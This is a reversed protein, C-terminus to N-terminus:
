KGPKPIVTIFSHMFSPHPIEGQLLSNYLSLLHPTLIPLFAKYYSYPLGDQGPSKHSPLHKITAALEEVAISANLKQLDMKTLKPLKIDALFADFTEHNFPPHHPPNLCNYLKDYFKSFVRAMTQPCHTPTGDPQRLHDPFSHFPRPKLRSVLMPKNSYEYFKQKAWFLSKAIGSM